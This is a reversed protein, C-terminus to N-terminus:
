TKKKFGEFIRKKKEEKMREEVRMKRRAMAANHRRIEDETELILPPVEKPRGKEDLAVITLYASATHRVVGSYPDESEIRVGVEMSTKGVFNLRSKLILINGLYVPNYFDLRDISATVCNSRTHRIAVTVAANDIHKMVVGGHVNGAPNTDQPLMVHTMVINSDEIRKGEM